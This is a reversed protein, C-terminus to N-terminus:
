LIILNIIKLPNEFKDGFKRIKASDFVNKERM